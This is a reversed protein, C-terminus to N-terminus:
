SRANQIRPNSPFMPHFSLLRVKSTGTTRRHGATATANTVSIDPAPPAGCPTTPVSIDPALTELLVVGYRCPEEPEAYGGMMQLHTSLLASSAHECTAVVSHNSWWVSAETWRLMRCRIWTLRLFFFSFFDKGNV